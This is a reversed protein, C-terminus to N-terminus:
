IRGTWLSSAADSPMRWDARPSLCISGVKPGDPSCSRKFQQSFFRRLFVALANRIEDGSFVGRFAFDALFLLKEPPAGYKIFHYLFFDHLDYSGLIKETKQAIHGDKDAPLLEPSVPTDVVDRLIEGLKGESREAYWSVIHRVLTKPIGCNVGYMSMHDANYTCWGLAIESLDGTGVVLGQERNAEDMLIQTRERAQTNEYTVDTKEPDHGIDKFHQLCAQRIDVIRLETGLEEAMREANGRTRGTTGFGPMTLTLIDKAPRKLMRFTEATVLLALTSDLGGSLGLVARKAGSREIRGALGACQIQFIERCVADRDAREGPVFPARSVTRYKLESVGPVENLRVPHIGSAQPASQFEGESLRQMLLRAPDADAYIIESTRQFRKNEALVTGNEAVILHGGFVTDMTSEGVGASAYAYIAMCRASQGTVLSRRYDAKMVIANSASLNLILNAGALALAGSPPVPGWLDQCLEVGIVLEDNVPYLASVPVDGVGPFPLAAGNRLLDAGSAFNRKEYFERHNPLFTKPTLGCIKGHQLIAACNYLRSGSRFPLGVALIMDSKAFARAIELVSRAASELLLPQFFLDGCTYGTVCLEPFLALSAGEQEALKGCRIIEQTNFSVDAVKIAPCVAAIRYFGHM